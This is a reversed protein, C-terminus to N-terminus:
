LWRDVVTRIQEFFGRALALAFNFIILSFVLFWAAGNKMRWNSNIM